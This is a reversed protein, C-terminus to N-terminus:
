IEVLRNKIAYVVVGATNKCGTKDLIAARHRDVTRKSLFLSDAIEQNSMGRCVMLLVERERETLLEDGDPNQQSARFGNVLSMLLEQSFYTGGQAVTRIAATVEDFDCSKLLFGRVGAEVMKFYYESQGHMSLAVIRADPNSELIHRSCETGDMVPMDIDMLIVDYQLTPLMTLFEAGNGAQGVIEAGLESSLLRCLGERFLIHDDVIAIRYKETPQEM